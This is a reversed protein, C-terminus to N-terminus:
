NMRDNHLHVKTSVYGISKLLKNTDDPRAFYWAYIQADWSNRDGILLCKIALTILLSFLNLSDVNRNLYMNFEESSYYGKVAM